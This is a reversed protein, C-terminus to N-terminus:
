RKRLPRPPTLSRGPLERKLFDLLARTAPALGRRTPFLAIIEGWRPLWSPLVVHLAGSALEASCMYPPLGAVGLGGLAGAKLMLFGNSVLPPNVKVALSDHHPGSMVIQAPQQQNRSYVLYHEPLLDEPNDPFGHRDIFRSSAVFLWDLKCISVQVLSTDNIPEDIGRLVLDFGEAILDVHRNSVNVEVRVEPFQELFEPILQSVVFHGVAIPVSLRVLGTPAEHKTRVADEGARAAEIMAQCHQYLAHGAETLGISRTSRQILRADLDGELAAIRRSIRSKPINLAKAAATFGKLDVLTSFIYLDQLNCNVFMAM